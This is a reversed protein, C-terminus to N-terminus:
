NKKRDNKKDKKWKGILWDDPRSLDKSLRAIDCETRRKPLLEEQPKVSKRIGMRECATTAGAKILNTFDSIDNLSIIPM